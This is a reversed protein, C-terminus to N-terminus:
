TEKYGVDVVTQEAEANRGATSHARWLQPHVSHSGERKVRGGVARWLGYTSHLQPTRRMPVHGGGRRVAQAM